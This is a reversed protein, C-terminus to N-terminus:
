CIRQALIFLANFMIETSFINAANCRKRRIIRTGYKKTTKIMISSSVHSAEPSPSVSHGKQKSISETVVPVSYLERGSLYTTLLSPHNTASYSKVTSGKIFSPRFTTALESLYKFTEVINSSTKVRRGPVHSSLVATRTITEQRVIDKTTSTIISSKGIKLSRTTSNGTETMSTVAKRTKLSSRVTLGM